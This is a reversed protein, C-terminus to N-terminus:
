AEPRTDPDILADALGSLAELAGAGDPLRPLVWAFGGTGARQRLERALDAHTRALQAEAQALPALRHLASALAPSADAPRRVAAPMPLEASWALSRNLVYGGLDLGLEERTKKEFFFAEQVAERDPSTVLLFSVAESRFFGQMDHQNTNLHGLIQSFLEFFVQLDRRTDEGFAVDMVKELMKSAVRRIVSGEGPVFLNFIRKDLFAGVREPADLFRLANRSPPTDLVVLDYRDDLVFSHMAEVATYEQMGAVMASVNRYIPNALLRAAEEPTRSQAHVVEDSVRQPDLMWASLSGPAAIGLAALREPHLAVPEPPNRDVGLAEALRKSPDITVVLVRKGQRAAALALSASVTTKGVGGAGCCVIVKCRQLLAGPSAPAASM